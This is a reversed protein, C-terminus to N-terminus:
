LITTLPLAPRQTMSREFIAARSYVGGKIDDKAYALGVSIQWAGPDEKLKKRMALGVPNDRFTGSEFLYDGVRLMTDCDGGDMGPIHKYRLPGYNKTLKAFAVAWDM